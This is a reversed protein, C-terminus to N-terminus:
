SRNALKGGVAQAGDALIMFDIELQTPDANVNV